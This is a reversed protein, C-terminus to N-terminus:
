TSSFSIWIIIQCARFRVHLLLHSFIFSFFLLYSVVESFYSLVFSFDLYMKIDSRVIRFDLRLYYCLPIPLSHLAVTVSVSANFPINCVFMIMLCHFFDIIIIMLMMMMMIKLSRINIRFNSHMLVLMWLVDCRKCFASCSTHTFYICIVIYIYIYINIFYSVYVIYSRCFRDTVVYLHICFAYFLVDLGQM